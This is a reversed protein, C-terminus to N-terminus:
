PFVKDCTNKSSTSVKRIIDSGGYGFCIPNSNFEKLSSNLGFCRIYLKEHAMKFTSKLANTRRVNCLIVSNLRSLFM